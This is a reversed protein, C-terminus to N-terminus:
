VLPLTFFDEVTRYNYFVELKIPRDKDEDEPTFTITSTCDTGDQRNEMVEDIPFMGTSWTFEAGDASCEEIYAVLTVEEGVRPRETVCKMERIQFKKEPGTKTAEATKSDGTLHLTYRKERITKSQSHTVECRLTTNHDSTKPTFIVTSSSKYLGDLGIEPDSITVETQPFMSFEKYWKIQLDRPSYGSITVTFSAEQNATVRMPHVVIDSLTPPREPLRLCSKTTIPQMKGLTVRCTYVKGYDLATPTITLSCSLVDGSGRTEGKGLDRGAGSWTVEPTDGPNCGIVDCRLTVPRGYDPNRPDSSIEGVVLHGKLLIIRMKTFHTGCHIVDLSIESNHDETDPTLTLETTGSFIGSEPNHQINETWDEKPLERASSAWQIGPGGPYMGDITCSFTVPQGRQPQAPDCQIEGLTPPSLIEGLTWTIHKPRSLSDHQVQCRFNKGLDRMTPIYCSTSTVHYMRDNDQLPDTTHSSTIIDDGAYWTVQIDSPYFSHIRCSLDLKEGVCVVEQGKVIPDLMPVATVSLIQERDERHNTAPHFTRCIYTVGDDERITPKLILASIYSFSNDEEHENQIVRHSYKERHNSDSGSNWTLLETEQNNERRLWTISLDRPKFGNIPCTLTLREEHTVRDPSMISLLKPSVGIVNLIRRVSVPSTLAPHKVHVSLEAGNDLGYSPTIQLSCQCLFAGFKKRRILPTMELQLLRDEHGASGNMLQRGEEMDVDEDGGGSDKSIRVPTLLGGSKWTYITRMEEGSRRMCVSIDIDNPRFDMIQCTLTTRNMDILDDNGTIESLTPPDKKIFRFYLFGLVGLFLVGLFPVLVATIVAGSNDKRETVTLTLNRSLETQLLSRHSIICSYINGNDEMKPNLTLLSTVNYTGDSNERVNKVCTWIDLTECDSSGKRYQGWRISIDKPYFNHVDCTVTKEAGLEITTDTPTVDASPPVSVQLTVRGEAFDPTNFVSCNYVGEDSFQVRPLHLEANGNLIEMRKMYSGRRYSTEKGDILEYVKHETGNELTMGWLVSIAKGINLDSLDCRISVDEGRLASMVSTRMTVRLAGTVTLLPLLIYLINPPRM